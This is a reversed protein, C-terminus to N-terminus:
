ATAKNEAMNPPNNGSYHSGTENWRNGSKWEFLWKDAKSTDNSSRYVAFSRLRMTTIMHVHPAPTLLDCPHGLLACLKGFDFYIPLEWIVELGSFSLEVVKLRPLTVSQLFSKSLRLDNIQGKSVTLCGALM